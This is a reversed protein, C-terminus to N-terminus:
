KNLGKTAKALEVIKDFPIQELELQRKESDYDNVPKDYADMIKKVTITLESLDVEDLKDSGLIELTNEKGLTKEIFKYVAKFKERITMNPVSDIKVVTDLEEIVRITKKPLEYARGNAIITYEM